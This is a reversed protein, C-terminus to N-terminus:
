RAANADRDANRVADHYNAPNNMGTTHCWGVVHGMNNGGALTGQVQQVVGDDVGPLFLNSFFNCASGSNQTTWFFVQERAWTPISALWLAAGQESLDFNSGCGIGFIDGIGAASSALPTGGWPSAVAQIRRPGTALDLPSTYHTLLHLAAVGGQSHGLIGFSSKGAGASAQLLAFQDHSRNQEPDGFEIRPASFQADPWTEGSSCYGHSTILARGGAFDRVPGTGRRASFPAPGAVTDDIGVGSESPTGSIGPFSSAHNAGAGPVSAGDTAGASGAGGAGGGPGSVEAVGLVDAVGPAPELALSERLDHVIQTDPDQVRVQRAEFPLTLGSAAVAAAPLHLRLNTAGDGAAPEVMRSIWGVPQLVGAADTGWVETAVQLKRPAGFLWAQLSVAYGPADAPGVAFGLTARGSLMAAPELLPFAHVASRSVARGRGDRGHASIFARLDGPPRAPLMVGFIGDGAAGDGHAGDDHLPLVFDGRDSTVRVQAGDLATPGAGQLRAVLGVPRGALLEHGTLHTVLEVPAEDAVLLLGRSAPQGPHVPVTSEIRLTWLGVRDAALEWAEAQRGPVLPALDIVRRAGRGAAEWQDLRRLSEGPAAVSVDWAEVGPSLPVLTLTGVAAVPVQVTFMGGTADSMSVPIQLLRSRSATAQPEPLVVRGSLVDQAPAFVDRPEQANAPSAFPSALSGAVLLAGMLGFRFSGARM